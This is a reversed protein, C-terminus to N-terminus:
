GGGMILNKITTMGFNVDTTLGGMFEKLFSNAKILAYISGIYTLQSFIDNANYQLSFTILLILAVLIQLFLLSLFTKCWAKFIWSFKDISLSLIAFPSILIFVSIMVYRLSYSIALNVFGISIFSKILGDFTFLNFNTDVYITSNLKELLTTFSIQTEFLNKGVNRILSTICSNVFLASYCIVWCSNLAIVCLLLKFIFSSPRQVQSFTLHSLLLSLAYYLVFGYVLSNCIYIIGSTPSTGLIASLRSNTMINGDIFLLDDLITYINSNISSILSSFISNISDLLSSVINVEIIIM